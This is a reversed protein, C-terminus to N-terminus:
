VLLGGPDRSPIRVYCNATIALLQLQSAVSRTQEHYPNMARCVVQAVLPFLSVVAPGGTAYVNREAPLGQHM